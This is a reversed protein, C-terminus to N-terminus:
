SKPLMTRERYLQSSITQFAKGDNDYDLFACGCGVTEIIYDKHDVPGYFTPHRLGAQAAVDVFHAAFPKGSLQARKRAEVNRSAVQGRALPAALLALLERRSAKLVGEVSLNLLQNDSM